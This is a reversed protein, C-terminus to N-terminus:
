LRVKVAKGDQVKVYIGHAPNDVRRGMLDFYVPAQGDKAAEVSEIASFDSLSVDQDSIYLQVYQALSGPIRVPTWDTDYRGRIVPYAKYWGHGPMDVCNVTFLKVGQGPRLTASSGQVYTVAGSVVNVMKLGFYGQFNFYSDSWFSAKGSMDFSPSAYVSMRGGNLPYKDDKVGMGNESIIEWRKVVGEAPKQLGVLAHQQNKFQYDPYSPGYADLADLLFYGDNLGDWGWNFHFYGGLQYGDCVFAHGFSTSVGGYLVPRGAVMEDYIAQEWDQAPWYDRYIYLVSEAYDLYNYAGSGAAMITASSNNPAYNMNMAVGCAFNLQAVANNQATTTQQGKYKDLMNDWDFTVTSFDLSVTQSISQATYSNSGKGTEPWRHYRMIQALATAACGTICRKGGSVPCANNFPAYQGWEATVMYPIDHRDADRDGTDGSGYEPLGLSAGLAVRQGLYDLWAQANEPMADWSTARDMRALVPAACDDASLVVLGRDGTKYIYFRGDRVYVPTSASKLPARMVGAAANARAVAQEPTLPSAWTGAAVALLSFLTITKKM